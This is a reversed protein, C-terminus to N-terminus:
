RAWTLVRLLSVGLLFVAQAALATAWAHRIQLYCRCATALRLVLLPFMTLTILVFFFAVYEESGPVAVAALCVVAILAGAMAIVDGAYVVAREVHGWKVGARRFTTQFILLMAM